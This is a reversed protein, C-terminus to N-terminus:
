FFFKVVIFSITICSFIIIFPAIASILFVIGIAKFVKIYGNKEQEILKHTNEMKKNEQKLTELYENNKKIPHGCNKCNTEKDSNYTDCYDCRIIM